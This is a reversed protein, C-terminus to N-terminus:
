ARSAYRRYLSIQCWRASSSVVPIIRHISALTKAARPTAVFALHPQSSLANSYVFRRRLSSPADGRSRLYLFVGSKSARSSRSDLSFAFFSLKFVPQTSAAPSEPRENTVAPTKKMTSTRLCFRARKSRASRARHPQRGRCPARLGGQTRDGPCSPHTRTHFLDGHDRRPALGSAPSGARSISTRSQKEVERRADALLRPPRPAITTPSPSISLM